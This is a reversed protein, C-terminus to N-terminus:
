FPNNIDYFSNIVKNDSPVRVKNQVNLDKDCEHPNIAENFLAKLFAFLIMVCMVLFIALIALIIGIVSMLYDMIKDKGGDIRGFGIVPNSKSIRNWCTSM